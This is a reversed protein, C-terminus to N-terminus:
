VKVALSDKHVLLPNLCPDWTADLIRKQLFPVGLTLGQPFGMHSRGGERQLCCATAAVLVRGDQLAVSLHVQHHRLLRSSPRRSRGLFQLADHIM